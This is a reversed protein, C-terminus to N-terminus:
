ETSMRVPDAPRIFVVNGSPLPATRLTALDRTAGNLNTTTAATTPDVVIALQRPGDSAFDFFALDGPAVFAPPVRPGSWLLESPTTMAQAPGAINEAVFATLNPTAQAELAEIVAQHLEASSTSPTTTTAPAALFSTLQEPTLADLIHQCQTHYVDRLQADSVAVPALPADIPEAGAPLPEVPNSVWAAVAKRDLNRWNPLTFLRDRAAVARYGTVRRLEPDSALADAAQSGALSALTSQPTPQEGLATTCGVQASQAVTSTTSEAVLAAAFFGVTLPTALAAIAVTRIM